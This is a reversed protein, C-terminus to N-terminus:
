WCRSDLMSAYPGDRILAIMMQKDVFIEVQVRRDQNGDVPIVKIERVRELLASREDGLTFNLYTRLSIFTCAEGNDINKIESSSGILVIKPTFADIPALQRAFAWILYCNYLFPSILFLVLCVLLGVLRAYKQMAIM